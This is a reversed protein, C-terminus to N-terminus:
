GVFNEIKQLICIGSRERLIWFQLSIDTHFHRLLTIPLSMRLRLDVKTHIESEVDYSSLVVPSTPQQTSPMGTPRLALAPM